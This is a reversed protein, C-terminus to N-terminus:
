EDNFYAFPFIFYIDILLSFYTIKAWYYEAGWINDSLQGSKPIFLYRPGVFLNKCKYQKTSSYLYTWFRLINLSLTKVLVITVLCM